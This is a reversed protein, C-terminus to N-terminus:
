EPFAGSRKVAVQRESKSWQYTAITFYGHRRDAQLNNPQISLQQLLDSDVQPLPPSTMIIGLAALIRVPDSYITLIM